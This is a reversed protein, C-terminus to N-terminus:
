SWETPYYSCRECILGYCHINKDYKCRMIDCRNEIPHEAKVKGCLADAIQFANVKDVGHKYLIAVVEDREM